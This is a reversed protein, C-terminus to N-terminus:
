KGKNIQIREQYTRVISDLEDTTLAPWYTDTFYLEAYTAQWPLYNSLRRNGGTRILLDIDPMDSSWMHKKFNEESYEDGSRALAEAARIMELRGGYSLCIFLTQEYDATEQELITMQEQVTDPFQSLDGVFRIRVQQDLLTQKEDSITQQLLLLLAQVELQSRNWNETSFAYVSVYKIGKTKCHNLIRHMNDRGHKHGEIKSMGQEVSWRRNGDMIFAIHNLPQTDNM